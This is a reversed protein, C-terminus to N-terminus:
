EMPLIIPDDASCSTGLSRLSFGDVIQRGVINSVIVLSTGRLVLGIEPSSVVAPLYKAMLLLSM